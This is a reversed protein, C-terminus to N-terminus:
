RTLHEILENILADRVYILNDHHDVIQQRYQGLEDPNWVRGGRAVVSQDGAISEEVHALDNRAPLFDQQYAKLRELSTQYGVSPCALSLLDILCTLEQSSGAKLKGLLKPFELGKDIKKIEDLRETHFKELRGLLGDVIKARAPAPLGDFGEYLAQKAISDFSAVASLFVGRMMEVDEFRRISARIIDRTENVFHDRNVCYVGDIKESAILAMLNARTESSYFVVYSPPNKFRIDRAVTAGSDGTKVVSGLKWDVLILDYDSNTDLSNLFANLENERSIWDVRLQFGYRGLFSSLRQYFGDARTPQDDIWAIKYELQKM